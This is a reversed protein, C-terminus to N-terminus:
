VKWLGETTNLILFIYLLSWKQKNSNSNILKRLDDIINRKLSFIQKPIRFKNKQDRIFFLYKCIIWYHSLLIKRQHITYFVYNLYQIATNELKWNTLLMGRMNNFIYYLKYYKIYSLKKKKSM